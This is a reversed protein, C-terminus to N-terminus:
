ELDVEDGETAAEYAEGEGEGEGEEEAEGMGMEFLTEAVAELARELGEIGAEDVAPVEPSEEGEAEMRCLVGAVRVSFPARESQGMPVLRGFDLLSTIVEREKRVSDGPRSFVRVRVEKSERRVKLLDIDSRGKIPSFGFFTPASSVSVPQSVLSPKTADPSEYVACTMHTHDSPLESLAIGRFGVREVESFRSVHLMSEHRLWMQRQDGETHWPVLSRLLDASLQAQEVLPVASSALSRLQTSSAKERVEAAEQGLQCEAIRAQLHAGRERETLGEGSVRELEAEAEERQRESTSLMGMCAYLEAELSKVRTHLEQALGQHLESEAEAMTAREQAQATQHKAELVQTQTPPMARSSRQMDQMLSRLQSVTGELVKNRSGLSAAQAKSTRCDRELLGVQQQLKLVDGRLGKERKTDTEGDSEEHEACAAKAEKLQRAMRACKENARGLRDSLSAVQNQIQEREEREEREQTEERDSPPPPPLPTAQRALVEELQAQYQDRLADEREQREREKTEALAKMSQLRSGVRSTQVQIEDRLAAHRREAEEHRQKLEMYREEAEAQAKRAEAEAQTATKLATEADQTRVLLADRERRTSSLSASLADARGKSREAIASLAIADRTVTEATHRATDLQAETQKERSRSTEVVSLLTQIQSAYAAITNDMESNAAAREREWAERELVVATRVADSMSSPPMTEMSDGQEERTHTYMDERTDDMDPLGQTGLGHIEHAEWSM